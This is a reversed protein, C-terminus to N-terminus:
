RVLLEHDETKINAYNYPYLILQSYSHTSVYADVKGVSLVYKALHRIVPESEPTPGHYSFSCPDDSSGSVSFLLILHLSIFYTIDNKRVQGTPIGIAIVTLVTVLAAQVQRKPREGYAIRFEHCRRFINHAIVCSEMQYINGNDM